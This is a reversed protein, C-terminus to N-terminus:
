KESEQETFNIEGDGEVDFIVDANTDYVSEVGGVTDYSVSGGGIKMVTLASGKALDLVSRKNYSDLKKYAFETKGGNVATYYVRFRFDEGTPKTFTVSAAEVESSPSGGGFVILPM